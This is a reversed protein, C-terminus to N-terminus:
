STALPIWIVRCTIHQALGGSFARGKTSFNSYNILHLDIDFGAVDNQFGFGMRIDRARMSVAANYAANYIARGALAAIGV